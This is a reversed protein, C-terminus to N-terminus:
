LDLLCYHYKMNRYCNYYEPPLLTKWNRPNRISCDKKQDKLKETLGGIPM